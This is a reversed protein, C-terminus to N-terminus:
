RSRIYDRNNASLCVTMFIVQLDNHTTTLSSQVSDALQPDLAEGDTLAVVVKRRSSDSPAFFSLARNLATWMNTDGLATANDIMTILSNKHTSDFPRLILENIQHNFIILGARFNSTLKTDIINKLREKCIALRDNSGMSGSNDLVFVVDTDKFEATFLSDILGSEFAQLYKCVLRSKDDIDLPLSSADVFTFTSSITPLEDELRSESDIGELHDDRDPLELAIKWNSGWPLNIVWDTDLLVVSRLILLQFILNDIRHMLASWREVADERLTSINVQFVLLFEDNTYAKLGSSIRSFIDNQDFEETIPVLVVPSRKMLKRIQHSKGSGSKGVYCM